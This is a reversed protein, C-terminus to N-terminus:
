DLDADTEDNRHSIEFDLLAIVADIRANIAFAHAQILMAAMCALIPFLLEWDPLFSFIAYGTVVIIASGYSVRRNGKAASLLVRHKQADKLAM